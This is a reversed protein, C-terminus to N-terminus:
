PAKLTTSPYCRGCALYGGSRAQSLPLAQKKKGLYECGSKHYM